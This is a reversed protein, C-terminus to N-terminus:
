WCIFNVSNKRNAKAGIEQLKGVCFYTDKELNGLKREMEHVNSKKPCDLHMLSKNIDLAIKQFLDIFTDHKSHKVM